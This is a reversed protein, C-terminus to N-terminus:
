YKKPIPYVIATRFVKPVEGEDLFRAFFDIIISYRTKEDSHLATQRSNRKNEVKVKLINGYSKHLYLLM